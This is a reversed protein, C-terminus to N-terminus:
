ARGRECFSVELTRKAKDLSIIDEYLVSRVYPLSHAPRGALNRIFKKIIVAYAVVHVDINEWDVTANREIELRKAISTM